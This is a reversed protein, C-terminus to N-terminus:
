WGRFRPPKIGNLRLYVIIQGRHHTVHDSMLTLIQRKTMPGAFFKVAEELQDPKLNAAAKRSFEFAEQLLQIIEDKSYDTSKLDKEFNGGGLYSGGLWVMNSMIHLLQEKFTRVEQTPQFDYKEEPMLEAMEITYDRSNNWKQQFEKLYGTQKQGFISFWAGLSIILTLIKM